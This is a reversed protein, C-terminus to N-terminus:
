HDARARRAGRVRSREPDLATQQGPMILEGAKLLVALQRPQISIRALGNRDTRHHGPKDFSRQIRRRHGTTKDIGRKSALHIARAVGLM